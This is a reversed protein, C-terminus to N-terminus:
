QMNQTKKNTHEGIPWGYKKWRSFVQKTEWEGFDKIGIKKIVKNRTTEPLYNVQKVAKTQM